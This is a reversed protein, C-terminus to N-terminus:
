FKVNFKSCCGSLCLLVLFYTVDVLEMPGGMAANQAHGELNLLEESICGIESILPRSFLMDAAAHSSIHKIYLTQWSEKTLMEMPHASYREVFDRASTDGLPTASALTPIPIRRHHM